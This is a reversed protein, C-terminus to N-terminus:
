LPVNMEMFVKGIENPRIFIARPPVVLLLLKSKNEYSM